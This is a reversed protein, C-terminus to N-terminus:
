KINKNVMNLVKEATTAFSFSIEKIQEAFWLTLFEKGNAQLLDTLIVVQERRAQRDSKEYKCYTATDIDLAAALKRQQIQREECLQKIQKTFM